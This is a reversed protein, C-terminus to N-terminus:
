TAGVEDLRHTVTAAESRDVEPFRAAFQKAFARVRPWETFEHNHAVDTTLGHSRALARMFFRRLPTYNTYNLVGGVHLVRAPHWGTLKHLTAVYREARPDAAAAALSESFFWAERRSLAQANDRLFRVLARPYRGLHAQGGAIVGDFSRVSFTDLLTSACRVDVVHGFGRVVDGIFHALIGTHGELSDYVVLIRAM